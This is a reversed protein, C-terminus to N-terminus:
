TETQHTEWANEVRKGRTEHHRLALIHSGGSLIAVLEEHSAEWWSAVESRPRRTAWHLDLM